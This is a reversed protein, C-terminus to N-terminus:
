QSRCAAYIEGAARVLRDEDAASLSPTSIQVMLWTNVRALCMRDLLSYAIRSVYSATWHAGDSYFYYVARCGGDRSVIMRTVALLRGGGLDLQRDDQAEVRWGQAIYCVQPPHQVRWDSRSQVAAMWIV